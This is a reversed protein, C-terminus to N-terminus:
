NIAEDFLLMIYNKIFVVIDADGYRNFIIM